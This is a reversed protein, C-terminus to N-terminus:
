AAVAREMTVSTARDFGPHASRGTESFGMARFAAQTEVMEIRCKLRLRPLGRRAAEAAAMDILGRAIGRGRRDPDVALKGLYLAGDEVTGAVFGVPRAAEVAVFGCGDCVTEAFTGADWRTLSSPPDIRGDMVAFARLVLARIAAWDEDPGAARLTASPAANM